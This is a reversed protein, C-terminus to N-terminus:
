SKRLRWSLTGVLTASWGDFSNRAQCLRSTNKPQHVVFGEEGAAACDEPHNPEEVQGPDDGALRNVDPRNLHRHPEGPGLEGDGAIKRNDGKTEDAATSIHITM